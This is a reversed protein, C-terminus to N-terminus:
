KRPIATSDLQCFLLAIETPNTSNPIKAKAFVIKINYAEWGNKQM